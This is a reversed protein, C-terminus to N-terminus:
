DTHGDPVKSVDIESGKGLVYKTANSFSLSDSYSVIKAAEYGISSVTLPPQPSYGWYCLGITDGVHKSLEELPILYTDVRVLKGNSVDVYRIAGRGQSDHKMGTKKAGGLSIQYYLGSQHQSRNLWYSRDLNPTAAADADLDLMLKSNDVVQGHSAPEGPTADGDAWLVAQVLLYQDNNWVSVRSAPQNWLVTADKQPFGFAGNQRLESLPAAVVQPRSPKPLLPDYYIWRELAHGGITIVGEQYATATFKDGEALERAKPHEILCILISKPHRGNAASKSGPNLAKFDSTKYGRAIIGDPLIEQITLQWETSAAAKRATDAAQRAADAARAAAAQQAAQWEAARQPDYAFQKQLDPPLKSLLVTAVGTKHFLTVTAPTVRGWRVDTYTTGDITIQTPASPNTLGPASPNNTNTQQALANAATFALVLYLLRSINM